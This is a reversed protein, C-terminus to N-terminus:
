LAHLVYMSQTTCYPSAHIHCICARYMAGHTSAQHTFVCPTTCWGRAYLPISFYGTGKTFDCGVWVDNNEAVCPTWNLNLIGVQSACCQRATYSLRPINPQISLSKQVLHRYMFTMHRKWFDVSCARCHGLGIFVRAHPM